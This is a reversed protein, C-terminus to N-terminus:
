TDKSQSVHSRNIRYPYMSQFCKAFTQVIAAVNNSPPARLSIRLAAACPQSGDLLQYLFDSQARAFPGSWTQANREESRSLSTFYPSMQLWVHTDITFSGALM